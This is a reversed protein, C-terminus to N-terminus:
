WGGAWVKPEPKPPTSTAYRGDDVGLHCVWPM